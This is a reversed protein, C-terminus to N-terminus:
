TTGRGRRPGLDPSVMLSSAPLATGRPTPAGGVGFRGGPGVGRGLRPLPGAPCRPDRRQGAPALAAKRYVLLLGVLAVVGSRAWAPRRKGTRGSRGRCARRSRWRRRGAGPSRGAPREDRWANSAVSRELPPLKSASWSAPLKALKVQSPDSSAIVQGDVAGRPLRVPRLQAASEAVLLRVASV